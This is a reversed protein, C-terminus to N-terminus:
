LEERDDNKTRPPAIKMWKKIKGKCWLFVMIFLIGMAYSIRDLSLFVTLMIAAFWITAAIAVLIFYYVAKNGKIKM